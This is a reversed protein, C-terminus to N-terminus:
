KNWKKLKENWKGRDGDRKAKRDKAMQDAGVQHEVKALPVPWLTWLQPHKGIKAALGV